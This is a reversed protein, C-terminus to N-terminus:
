YRKSGVYKACPVGTVKVALSVRGCLQGMESTEKYGLFTKNAAERDATIHRVAGLFKGLAAPHCLLSSSNETM